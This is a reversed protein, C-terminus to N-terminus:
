EEMNGIEDNGPEDDGIVDLCMAEFREKMEPIDLGILRLDDTVMVTSDDEDYGQYFGGGIPVYEVQTGDELYSVQVTCDDLLKYSVNNKIQQMEVGERSTVMDPCPTTPKYTYRCFTESVKRVTYRRQWTGDDKPIDDWWYQDGNSLLLYRINPHRFQYTSKGAGGCVASPLPARIQPGVPPRDFTGKIPYPVPADVFVYVSRECSLREASTPSKKPADAVVETNEAEYVDLIYSEVGEFTVDPPLTWDVVLGKENVQGTLNSGKFNEGKRTFKYAGPMPKGNYTTPLTLHSDDELILIVSDHNVILIVNKIKKKMKRKPAAQTQLASFSRQQITHTLEHALLRNGATTGPAYQGTGFILHQGVTYALANVARASEAAQADTHIHVQSFDHHPKTAAEVPDVDTARSAQEAVQNAEREFEDGPSNITLKSQINEAGIPQISVRSLAHGFRSEMFARTQPDLPQGPSRLVDHVIPPATTPEATGVAFRQLRKERCEACEGGVGPTGGCACKRQLLRHAAPKLSIPVPTRAQFQSDSSM